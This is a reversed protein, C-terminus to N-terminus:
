DSRITQDDLHLYDQFGNEDNLNVITEVVLASAMM